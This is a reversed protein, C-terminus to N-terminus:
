RPNTGSALFRELLGEEIGRVLERRDKRAEDYDDGLLPRLEAEHETYQRLWANATVAFEETVNVSDVDDFGAGLM